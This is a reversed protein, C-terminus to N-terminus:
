RGGGKKPTPARRPSVRWGLRDLERRSLAARDRDVDESATLLTAFWALPSDNFAERPRRPTRRETKPM